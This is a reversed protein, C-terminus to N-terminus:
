PEAPQQDVVEARLQPSIFIADGFRLQGNRGQRTPFLTFLSYGFDELHSWIAHFLPAGAYHPVFFVEAFIAAIRQGALLRKAGRLAALECGQVDLKLIDIQEIGRRGCYADLTISPVEIDRDWGDAAPFYRRGQTPRSLTSSTQRLLNAHLVISGEADTVAVREVHVRPEGGVAAVLRSHSDPHPEFAHICAQPFFRLYAATVRGVSAGVDCVLQPPRGVFLGALVAERDRTDLLESSSIFDGAM